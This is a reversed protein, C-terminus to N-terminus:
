DASLLADLVDWMQDLDCAPYDYFELPVDDQQRLTDLDQIPVPNLRMTMTMVTVVVSQRRQRSRLRFGRVVPAGGAQSIRGGNLRDALGPPYGLTVDVPAVELAPSM